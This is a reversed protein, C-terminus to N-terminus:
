YCKLLTQRRTKDDWPKALVPDFVVLPKKLRVALSSLTNTVVTTDSSRAIVDLMADKTGVGFLEPYLDLTLCIQQAIEAMSTTPDRFEQVAEVSCYHAVMEGKANIEDALAQFGTTKGCQRPAHVGFYQKKRILSMVEPLRETASLM